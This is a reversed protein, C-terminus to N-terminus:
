WVWPHYFCLTSHQCSKQFTTMTKSIPCNMYIWVDCICARIKHTQVAASHKTGGKKDKFSIANYYTIFKLSSMNDFNKVWITSPNLLIMTYQSYKALTLMTWSFPKTGQCHDYAWNGQQSMTLLLIKEHWVFSWEKKRHTSHQLFQFILFSSIYVQFMSNGKYIGWLWSLNWAYWGQWDIWHFLIM